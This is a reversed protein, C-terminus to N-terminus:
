SLSKIHSVKTVNPVETWHKRLRSVNDANAELYRTKKIMEIVRSRYYPLKARIESYASQVFDRESTFLEESQDILYTNNKQATLQSRLRKLDLGYQGYKQREEDSIGKFKECFSIGRDIDKALQDLQDKRALMKSLLSDMNQMKNIIASLRPLNEVYRWNKISSDIDTRDYQKALAIYGSILRSEWFFDEQQAKNASDVITRKLALGQQIM